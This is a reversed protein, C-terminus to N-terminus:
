AVEQKMQIYDIGKDVPILRIWKKETPIDLRALIEQHINRLDKCITRYELEEMGFYGHEAVIKLVYEGMRKNEIAKKMLEEKKEKIEKKYFLSRREEVDKKALIINKLYEYSSQHSNGLTEKIFPLIVENPVSFNSMIM